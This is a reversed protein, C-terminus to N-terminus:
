AGGRELVVKHFWDRMGDLTDPKPTETQVCWAKLAVDLALALEVSRKPPSELYNRRRAAVGWALHQGSANDSYLMAFNGAMFETSIERIEGSTLLLLMEGSDRLYDTLIEALWGYGKCSGITVQAPGVFRLVDDRFCDFIAPWLESENLDCWRQSDPEPAPLRATKSKLLKLRSKVDTM